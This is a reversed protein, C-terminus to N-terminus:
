LCVIKRWPRKANSRAEDLSICDTFLSVKNEGDYGFTVISDTRYLNFEVISVDPCHQMISKSISTMFRGSNMVSQSAPGNLAFVYGFPRNKPYESYSSSIDRKRMENITIKRGKKITMQASQLAATCEPTELNQAQVPFTLLFLIDVAILGMIIDKRM